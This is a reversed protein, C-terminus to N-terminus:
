DTTKTYEVILQYKKSSNYFSGFSLRIEQSGTSYFVDNKYEDQRYCPILWSNSYESTAWGNMKIITDINPLSFNLENFNINGIFVKRYIPKGDIWTGIIQEGTSYNQQANVKEVDM